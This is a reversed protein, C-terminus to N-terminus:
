EQVVWESTKEEFQFGYRQWSGVFKEKHALRARGVRREGEAVL